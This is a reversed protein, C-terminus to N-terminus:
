QSSCLSCNCDFLYDKLSAQRASKSRSEPSSIYSMFLQDGPSIPKLAKCSVVANCDDFDMVVNPSCSHNTRAVSVFFGTGHFNPYQSEELLDEMSMEKVQDRIESIMSDIFLEDEVHDHDHEDECDDSEMENDDYEEDEYVGRAEDDWLAQMVVQKERLIPEISAGSQYLARMEQGLRSPISIDINNLEFVSLLRSLIGFAQIKDAFFKSFIENQGALARSMLEFAELITSELWQEWEEDRESGMPPRAVENFPRNTFTLLEELLSSFVEYNGQAKASVTALSQALLLLNDGCGEISLCYFKFESVAEGSAGAGVVCLCYHHREHAEAGCQPSCYVEGCVCNSFANGADPLLTLNVHCFRDENFITAMQDRISGLPKHCNQCAKIFRRNATHQMSVLPRDKYLVSGCPSSGRAFVGFGVAESVLKVEAVDSPVSGLM